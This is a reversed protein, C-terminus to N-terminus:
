DKKNLHASVKCRFAKPHKIPFARPFTNFGKSGHFAFYRQCTALRCKPLDLCSDCRTSRKSVSFRSNFLTSLYPPALDNRCKHVMVVDKLFLKDCVNLWGPAKLSKSIHDFTQLGLIIIRCAFNQILQLKRRNKTWTDSWVASCLRNFVFANIVLILTKRDFLHKLRSLKYFQSLNSGLLWKMLLNLKITWTITSRFLLVIKM